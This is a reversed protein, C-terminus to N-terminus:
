LRPRTGRLFSYRRFAVFHDVPQVVGIRHFAADLDHEPLLCLIFIHMARNAVAGANVEVFRRFM